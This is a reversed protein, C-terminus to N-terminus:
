HAQTPPCYELTSYLEYFKAYPFSCPLFCFCTALIPKRTSFPVSAYCHGFVSIIFNCPFIERHVKAFYVCTNVLARNRQGWACVNCLEIWKGGWGEISQKAAVRRELPHSPQRWRSCVPRSHQHLLARRRPNQGILGQDEGSGGVAGSDRCALGEGQDGECIFGSDRIGRADSLSSRKTSSENAGGLTISREIGIPYKGLSQPHLIATFLFCTKYSDHKRNATSSLLPLNQRYSPRAWTVCHFTMLFASLRKFWIAGINSRLLYM